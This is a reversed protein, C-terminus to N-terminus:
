RQAIPAVATHSKDQELTPALGPTAAPPAPLTSGLELIPAPAPAISLNDGAVAWPPTRWSLADFAGCRPCLSRWELSESGCSACVYRPDPPAGVARDLWERVPGLDGHEAEELRAM